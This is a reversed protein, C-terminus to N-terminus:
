LSRGRGTQYGSPWTPCPITFRARKDPIRAAWRGPDLALERASKWRGGHREVRAATWGVVVGHDVTTPSPPLKLPQLGGLATGNLGRGTLWAISGQGWVCPERGLWGAAELKAVHRRVVREDIGLGVQVAPLSVVGLRGIFRGVRMSGPGIREGNRIV